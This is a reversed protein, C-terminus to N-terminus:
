FSFSVAVKITHFTDRDDDELEYSLDFKLPKWPSLSVRAYWTQVHEREIETLQDYKYLAFSTGISAKLGKMIRYTLDGGVSRTDGNQTHPVEWYEFTASVSLGEIPWDNIAPTLFFRRFSRNFKEDRHVDRGERIEAGAQIVVHDGLGKALALRGQMYPLYEWVVSVLQDLDLSEREQRKLLQYWSADVRLDWDASYLDARVQYDRSDSDLMTYSGSLTVLQAIEQWASVAWLSDREVHNRYDDRIATFDARLRGGDWPRIQAWAGLVWDGSPSSEYMHVPIGAYVGAQLSLVAKWPKSDIRLGDMHFVNPTENLIQRGLRASEIPGLRHLELWAYYIRGNWANDFTDTISDYVYGSRKAHNGDIDQTGRLYLHATVTHKLSSGIDASLYEYFDQDEDTNDWRARYKITLRGHVPFGLLDEALGKDSTTESKAKPAADKPPDAPPPKETSTDPAPPAPDTVTGGNEPPPPTPDQQGWSESCLIPALVVILNALRM